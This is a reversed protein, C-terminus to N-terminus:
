FPGFSARGTPLRGVRGFATGHPLHCLRLWSLTLHRPASSTEGSKTRWPEGDNRWEYIWRHVSIWLCYLSELGDGGGDCHRTTANSAACGAPQRIPRVFSGDYDGDSTPAAM